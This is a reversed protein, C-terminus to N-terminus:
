LKNTQLVRTKPSRAFNHFFTDGSKKKSHHTPKGPMMDKKNLLVTKSNRCEDHMGHIQNFIRYIPELRSVLIKKNIFLLDGLTSSHFRSMTALRSVTNKETVSAKEVNQTLAFCQIPENSNTISSLMWSFDVTHLKAVMDLDWKEVRTRKSYFFDSKLTHKFM